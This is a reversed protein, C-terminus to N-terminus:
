PGTFRLNSNRPKLECRLDLRRILRTLNNPHIGLEEAADKLQKNRRIVELIHQRKFRNVADEYNLPGEERDAEVALLEGSLDDPLLCDGSGLVAAREIANELERVNGPWEYHTLVAHAEPSITINRGLKAGIRRAFHDALVGIDESRERLAPLRLAIVNLRFYLDERFKGEGVAKKLDRNTAAVIRANVRVSDLGGVREFVGSQVARLLKAQLNVPLEGIEDLFLTGEDAAEFRGKKQTTAGTFAGKEHGFLESEVLEAPLAACNVAVFPGDSCSSNQHIAWAVLEKGTGSEGEILVTSATPAAKTIFDYVKRVKPSEGIMQHRTESEGVIRSRDEELRELYLVSELAVAAISAIAGVLQFDGRDFSPSKRTLYLVGIKSNPTQLPVSLVSDGIDTEGAPALLAAGEQFVRNVVDTDVSGASNPNPAAEPYSRPPGLLQSGPESLLISARDARSSEKLMELLRSRLSESDEYNRLADSVRMLADLDQLTRSQSASAADLGGPKLYISENPDLRLTRSETLEKVSERPGFSGISFLAETAGLRIRDGHEIKRELVKEGNVWIGNRSHDHISFDTGNNRISCHLESLWPDTVVIENGEGRGVRVSEEHIPVVDNKRNGSLITLRPGTQHHGQKASM